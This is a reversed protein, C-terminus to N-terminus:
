AVGEIAKPGRPRGSARLEVTRNLAKAVMAEFFPTLNMEGIGDETARAAQGRYIAAETGRNSRFFLTLNM